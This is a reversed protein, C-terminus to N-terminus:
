HITRTNHYVDNDPKHPSRQRVTRAKRERREDSRGELVKNASSPRLAPNLLQPLLRPSLHDTLLTSSSEFGTINRLLVVRRTGQESLKTSTCPEIIIIVVSPQLPRYATCM